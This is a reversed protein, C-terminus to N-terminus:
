QPEQNTKDWCDTQGVMKCTRVCYYDVITIHGVGLTALYLLLSSGIDGVGIVLISSGLDDSMVYSDFPTIEFLVTM